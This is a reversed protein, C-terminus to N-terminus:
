IIPGGQKIAVSDSKNPRHLQYSFPCVGIRSKDFPDPRSGARDGTYAEAGVSETRNRQTLNLGPKGCRIDSKSRPTSKSLLVSHEPDAKRAPRKLGRKSVEGADEGIAGGVFAARL